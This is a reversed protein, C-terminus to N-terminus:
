ERGREKVKWGPQVAERQQLIRGHASLPEVTTIEVLGMPTTNDWVQLVLGASVGHRAGINVTIGAPTVHVIRGQLPYEQRLTDLLTVATRQLIGDIAAPTEFPETVTTLINTSDTELVRLSLRGAEGLHTLSGTIMLRAALIRGVRLAVQPDVLGAASLGIESLLKDLVEREVVTIRGSAKLAQTLSLIIFDEDGARAPLTGKTQLPLFALTIPISTWEDREAAPREPVKGDRYVQALRAVLADLRQQQETDRSLQERREAERLLTTTLPDQPAVQLAQRYLEVAEQRKGLKDLVYGKNTYVAVMDRQQGIARDYHALAAPADGQAAALQGLHNHAMARQWPTALLKETATRYAAAADDPKGQSLLIHGRIVRTYAIEPDLEEAQRAFALAHRSDHRAFAVAALGAYGQSQVRKQPAATLQQFLAEAKPWDHHTLAQYAEPLTGPESSDGWWHPILFFAALLM